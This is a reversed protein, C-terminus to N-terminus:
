QIILKGHLAGASKIAQLISIIDRTSLKLRNLAEVLDTVTTGAPLAVTASQKDSVSIKTEPVVATNIGNGAHNGLFLFGPQSVNYRTTIVVRLDGQSVAVAGINVGGGAVVTGTRENVVVRAEADPTIAVNEIKAILEVPDDTSKRLHVVIRGADMANITADPLARRLAVAAREATIFDPQDLVLTLHDTSLPIPEPSPREVSAGSPIFGVNPFNKQIENGNAAFDYGGVTLSGQALAYLKRDPGYLPTLLLTGGTLSHADGLSSVHVDLKDGSQAFSPLTATVMVAAANGSGLQQPQVNVGFNALINALSQLTAQDRSGDGSGSLGVVIGYGVLANDRVGDIRALNKLPIGAPADALSPLAATAGLCLILSITLAIIKM